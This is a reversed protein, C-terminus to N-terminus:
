YPSMSSCVQDTCVMSANTRPRGRVSQRTIYERPMPQMGPPTLPVPADPHLRMVELGDERTVCEFVGNVGMGKSALNLCATHFTRYIKQELLEKQRAKLAELRQEHLAQGEETNFFIYETITKMFQRAAGGMDQDLPTADDLTVGARDLEGLQNTMSQIEHNQALEVMNPHMTFWDRVDVCMKYLDGKTPPIHSGVLTIIDEDVWSAPAEPDVIPPMERRHTPGNGIALTLSYHLETITFLFMASICARVLCVLM